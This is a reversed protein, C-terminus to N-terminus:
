NKLLVRFYETLNLIRILALGDEMEAAAEVADAGVHTLLAFVRTLNSGPRNLSGSAPQSRTVFRAQGQVAATLQKAIHPPESVADIVNLVARLWLYALLLFTLVLLGTGRHRILLVDVIM